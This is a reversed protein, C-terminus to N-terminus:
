PSEGLADADAVTNPREVDPTSRAQRDATRCCRARRHGTDVGGLREDLDGPVAVGAGVDTDARHELQRPGVLAEIGGGRDVADPATAGVCQPLGM